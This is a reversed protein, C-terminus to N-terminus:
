ILAERIDRVSCVWFYPNGIWRGVQAAGTKGMETFPVVMCRTASAGFRSVLFTTEERDWVWGM